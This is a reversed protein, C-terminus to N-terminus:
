SKPLWTKYTTVGDDGEVEESIFLVVGYPTNEVSPMNYVLYFTNLLPSFGKLQIYTTYADWQNVNSIGLIKLTNNEIQATLSPKQIFDSFNNDTDVPKAIPLLYEVFDGHIGTDVLNGKMVDSLFVEVNKEVNGDTTTKEM